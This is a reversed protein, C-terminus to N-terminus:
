IINSVPENGNHSSMSFFSKLELQRPNEASWVAETHRTAVGTPHEQEYRAVGIKERLICRELFRAEAEEGTGMPAHAEEFQAVVELLEMKALVRM